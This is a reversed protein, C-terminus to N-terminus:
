NITLTGLTVPVQSGFSTTDPIVLAVQDENYGGVGEVQVRVLVYGWAQSFLGGFGNIGMRGNVLNSLPGVDLSCAEVFEPTVANITFGNELLVWCSEETIRVQAINELGSWCTLLDPNLFPAKQM